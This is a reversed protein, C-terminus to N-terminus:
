VLVATGIGPSSAPREAEGGKDDVRLVAIGTGGWHSDSSAM